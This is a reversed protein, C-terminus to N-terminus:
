LRVWCRNRVHANMREGLERLVRTLRNYRECRMRRGSVHIPPPPVGLATGARLERAIAHSRRAWRAFPQMTTTAYVVGACRRCRFGESTRYLVVCRRGCTCVVWRRSRGARPSRGGFECATATVVLRDIRERGDITYNLSVQDLKAVVNVHPGNPLSVAYEVGDAWIIVGRLCPRLDLRLTAEEPIRPGDNM